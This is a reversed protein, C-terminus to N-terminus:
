GQHNVFCSASRPIRQNIKATPSNRDAAMALHGAQQEAPRERREDTDPEFTLRHAHAARRAPRLRRRTPNGLALAPRHAALAPATRPHAPRRRAAAPLAPDQTRGPRPATDHLLLTQAFALLDVAIM